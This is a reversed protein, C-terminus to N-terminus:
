WSARSYLGRHKFDYPADAMWWSGEGCLDEGFKGLGGDQHGSVRGSRELAGGGREDRLKVFVVSCQVQERARRVFAILMAGGRATEGSSATRIVATGAEVAQEVDADFNSEAAQRDADDDGVRLGAEHATLTLGERTGELDGRVLTADFGAEYRLEASITPM